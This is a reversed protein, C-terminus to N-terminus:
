RRQWSIINASFTFTEYGAIPSPEQRVVAIVKDRVEDFGTSGPVCAYATIEYIVYDPLLMNVYGVTVRPEYGNIENVLSSDIDSLNYFDPATKETLIGFGGSVPDEAELLKSIVAQIGADAAYYANLNDRAIARTNVNAGVYSLLSGVVLTGFAMIVLSLPLIYGRQYENHPQKTTMALGLHRLLGQFCHHSQKAKSAIVTQTALRDRNNKKNNKVTKMM